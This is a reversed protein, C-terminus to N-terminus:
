CYYYYLKNLLARNVSILNVFHKVFVCLCHLVYLLGSIPQKKFAEVSVIEFDGKTKLRLRSLHLASSPYDLGSM